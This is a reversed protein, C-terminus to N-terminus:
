RNFREENAIVGAIIAAVVGVVVLLAGAAFDSNFTVPYFHNFAWYAAAMSGVITAVIGVTAM